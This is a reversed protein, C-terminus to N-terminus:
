PDQLPVRQEEAEGTQLLEGRVARDGIRQLLRGLRHPISKPPQKTLDCVVSGPLSTQGTGRDIEIPGHQARSEERLARRTAEIRMVRLVLRVVRQGSVQRLRTLEQGHDVALAIDVVRLLRELRQVEQDLVHSPFQGRPVEFGAEIPDEESSVEEFIQLGRADPVRHLSRQPVPESGAGQDPLTPAPLPNAGVQLREEGLEPDRLPIEGEPNCHIALVDRVPGPLVELEVQEVRVIPM